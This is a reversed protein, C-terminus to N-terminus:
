DVRERPAHRGPRKTQFGPLNTEIWVSAPLTVGVAPATASAAGTEIWVSAPLTVGPPSSSM